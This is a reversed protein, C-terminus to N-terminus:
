KGGKPETYRGVIMIAQEDTFGKEKLKKFLQWSMEAITEVLEPDCMIDYILKMQEKLDEKNM